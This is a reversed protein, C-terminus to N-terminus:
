HLFSVYLHCLSTKFMQRLTEVMQMFHKVFILDLYDIMDNILTSVLRFQLFLWHQKFNNIGDHPVAMGDSEKGINETYAGRACLSM